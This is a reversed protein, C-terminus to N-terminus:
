TSGNQKFPCNLSHVEIHWSYNHDAVYCFILDSLYLSGLLIYGTSIASKSDWIKSNCTDMVLPQFM